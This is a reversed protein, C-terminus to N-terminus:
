EAARGSALTPQHAPIHYLDIRNELDRRLEVLGTLSLVYNVRNDPPAVSAILEFKDLAQQAAPNLVGALSPSYPHRDIGSVFVYRGGFQEQWEQRSTPYPPLVECIQGEREGTFLMDIRRKTHRSAVLRASAPCPQLFNEVLMRGARFTPAQVWKGAYQNPWYLSLGVLVTAACVAGARLWRRSQYARQFMDGILLAGFPFMMYLYRPQHWPPFYSRLDVSGVSLYLGMVVVCCVLLKVADGSRRFAVILGLLYVPGWGDYFGTPSILWRLYDTWHLALSQLTFDALPSGYDRNGEGLAALHYNAEGTLNWLVAAELGYWLLGGVGLLVVRRWAWVQRTRFLMVFLGSGFFLFLALEKCGYGAGILFGGILLRVGNRKCSEDLLSPAVLVMGAVAFAAGLGDASLITAHIVFYPTLGLAIVAAWAARSGLHRRGFCWVMALVVASALLPPVVMTPWGDGLFWTFVRVTFWLAVRAYCPMISGSPRGGHFDTAVRLYAIDDSAVPGTYYFLQLALAALLCAALCAAPKLQRAFSSKSTDALGDSM